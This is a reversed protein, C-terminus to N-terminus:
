EYLSAGREYERIVPIEAVVHPLLIYSSSDNVEMYIIIKIMSPLYDNETWPIKNWIKNEQDFYEFDIRYFKFDEFFNLTEEQENNIDQSNNSNLYSGGTYSIDIMCPKEKRVLNNSYSDITYSVEKLVDDKKILFKVSRSKGEFINEKYLPSYYFNSLDDKFRRDLVRWNQEWDGRDEINEWTFLGQNLFMFVAGLIIGTITVAIIIEILTYGNEDM